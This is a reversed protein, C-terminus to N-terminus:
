LYYNSPLALRERLRTWPLIFILLYVCTFILSSCFWFLMGGHGYLDFDKSHIHFSDDPLVIELVGQTITYVLSIMSTGILVHRISSRSDLHGSVFCKNHFVCCFLSCIDSVVHWALYLLVWKQLLCSFDYLWGYYRTLRVVLQHRQMLQWLYLVDFSM